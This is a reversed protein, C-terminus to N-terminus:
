VDHRRRARHRGRRGARRAYAAASRSSLALLVLIDVAVATFDGVAAFSGGRGLWAAFAVSIDVVAVVMVIVRALDRGALIFAALTVEVLTIAITAATLAGTSSAGLAATLADVVTGANQLTRDWGGFLGLGALAGLVARALVLAAGAVTTLPRAMGPDYPTPALLRQPPEYAPRKAPITM